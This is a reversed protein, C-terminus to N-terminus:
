PRADSPRRPQDPLYLAAIDFKVTQPGTQGQQNTETRIQAEHFHESREMRRVLELANDRSQSEVVVEVSLQSQDNMKPQISLVRANTPMLQELDSLVQTWSFSKEAILANLFQARDRTTRNEPRNLFAENTARERDAADIQRRMDSIKSGIDRSGRWNLFLMVVLVLTIASLAGVLAGWRLYFERSDEYPHTALNINLRM